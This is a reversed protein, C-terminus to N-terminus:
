NKAFRLVLCPGPVLVEIGHHETDSLLELKNKGPKLHKIDVATKTFVVDHVHKGSTINYFHGNIKFHEKVNGEGGDWVKVILQARKLGKLKEPLTIDAKILRKARSWFPVPLTDCSHFSVRNRKKSFSINNLVPTRYCLGKKLRVVAQLAMSKSQSPVMSADWKVSFPAKLSTGVHNKYIRDHTYGHWDDTVTDGNDDFGNYRALYDVSVISQMFKQPVSISVEASDKIAQKKGKIKVQASFGKLGASDLDPHGAKLFTRVCGEDIIFHGWFGKGRECVFQFANAGGVLNVPKIPIVPYTYTCHGAKTGPDPVTYKERGNVYFHKNATKPHGGWMEMYLEASELLFLDEEVEVIMLGNAVAEPRKGYMESLSLEKDNVRLRSTKFPHNTCQRIKDFDVWHERFFEGKDTGAITGAAMLFILTTIIIKKLM